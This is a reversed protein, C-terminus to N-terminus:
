KIAESRLALSLTMFSVSWDEKLYHCTSGKQGLYPLM